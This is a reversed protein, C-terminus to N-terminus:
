RERGRYLAYFVPTLILGFVLSLALGGLAVLVLVAFLQKFWPALEFPAIMELMTVLFRIFPEIVIANAAAFQGGARDPGVGALTYIAAVLGLLSLVVALVAYPWLWRRM